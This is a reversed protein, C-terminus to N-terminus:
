AKVYTENVIEAIEVSVSVAVLELSQVADFVGQALARRLDVSRGSMLKITIFVFDNAGSVPLFDSFLVMRVKIDKEAFLGSDLAAAYVTKM